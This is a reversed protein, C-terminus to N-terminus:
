PSTSAPVDPYAARLDFVRMADETAPVEEVGTVLYRQVPLRGPPGGEPDVRAADIRLEVPRGTADDRLYRIAAGAPEITGGNTGLLLPRASGRYVQVERGDRRATGAAVLRGDSVLGDAFDFPDPSPASGAPGEVVGADPTYYTFFGGSLAVDSVVDGDDTLRSRAAADDGGRLVWTDGTLTRSGATYTIELQQITGEDDADGGGGCGALLAAGAVLLLLLRGWTV